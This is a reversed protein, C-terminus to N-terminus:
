AACRSCQVLVPGRRRHGDAARFVGTGADRAAAAIALRHYQSVAHMAAATGCAGTLTGTTTWTGSGNNTTRNLTVTQASDDYAGSVQSGGASRSVHVTTPSPMNYQMCDGNFNSYTLVTPVALKNVYVTCPSTASDFFMGGSVAGMDTTEASTFNCVHFASGDYYMWSDNASGTISGTGGTLDYNTTSGTQQEFTLGTFTLTQQDGSVHWDSPDQPGDPYCNGTSPDL